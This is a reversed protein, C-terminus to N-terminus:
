LLSVCALTSSLFTIYILLFRDRRPSLVTKTDLGIRNEQMADWKRAQDCQFHSAKKFQTGSEGKGPRMIPHKKIKLMIKLLIEGKKRFQTGNERKIVSFTPRKKLNRGVEAKE